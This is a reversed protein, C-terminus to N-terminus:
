LLLKNNDTSKKCPLLCLLTMSYKLIVKLILKIIVNLSYRDTEGIKTLNSSVMNTLQVVM